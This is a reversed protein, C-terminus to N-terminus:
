RTNRNEVDTGVQENVDLSVSEGTLSVKDTQEVSKDRVDLGMRENANEILRETSFIWFTQETKEKFERLLEYRPRVFDFNDDKEWWDFKGDGTIFVVDEGEQEAFEMLQKWIFYDECEGRSVEDDGDYDEYGPPKEAEYREQAEDKLEELDEELESGTKGEFIDMLGGLIEDEEANARTTGTPTFREELDEIRAILDEKVAEVEVEYGERDEFVGEIEDEIIQGIDDSRLQDKINNFDKRRKLWKEVEEKAKSFSNHETRIVSRRRLFFQNAAENTLFIRDGFAQFIKFYDETTERDVRYLNLLVNADFSFTAEEWLRQLEEETPDLFWPFQERM